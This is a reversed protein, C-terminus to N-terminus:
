KKNEKQLLLLLDNLTDLYYDAGEYNTADGIAAAKMNGRHAAEIGALADEIVIVEQKALGLQEQAKVFVEPDPKSNNILNGDIVVSFYSNLMTKELILKANKSSSGIALKYGREVLTDLVNIVENSINNPGMTALYEVYINNKFTALQHKEEGTYKKPARELIIDLSELRSVGRLRHNIEEDFYIGEQDAMEKWAQYHFKDTHVLVGDLDFIIGKIM